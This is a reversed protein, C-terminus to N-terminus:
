LFNFNIIKKYEDAVLLLLSLYVFGFLCELFKVELVSGFLSVGYIESLIGSLVFSIGSEMFNGHRWVIVSRNFPCSGM